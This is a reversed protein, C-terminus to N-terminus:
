LCLFLYLKKWIEEQDVGALSNHEGDESIQGKKNKGDFKVTAMQQHIISLWKQSGGGHDHDDKM